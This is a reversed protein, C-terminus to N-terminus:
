TPWRRRLRRTAPHGPAMPQIKGSDRSSADTRPCRRADLLMSRGLLGAVVKLGAVIRAAPSQTPFVLNTSPEDGFAFRAARDRQGPDQRPDPLMAGANRGEM